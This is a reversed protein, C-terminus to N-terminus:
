VRWITTRDLAYAESGAPFHGIVNGTAPDIAAITEGSSAERWQGGILMRSPKALFSKVEPLVDPTKMSSVPATQRQAFDPYGGTESSPGPFGIRQWVAPDSLYFACTDARLQRFFAPSVTALEDLLEQIESASLERVPRGFRERALEGAAALGEAYLPGNVGHRAREAIGPGAHVAAAGADREDAPIIGNALSALSAIDDLSLPTERM